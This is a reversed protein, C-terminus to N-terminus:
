KIIELMVVPYPTVSETVWMSPTFNWSLGGKESASVEHFHLEHTHKVRACDREQKDSERFEAVGSVVYAQIVVYFSNILM